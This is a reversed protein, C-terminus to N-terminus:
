YGYRKLMADYKSETETESLNNKNFFSQIVPYHHAQMKKHGKLRLAFWSKFEISHEQPADQIETENEPSAEFDLKKKFDKTM